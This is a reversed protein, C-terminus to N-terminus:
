QFQQQCSWGGIRTYAFGRYAKFGFRESATLICGNGGNIALFPPHDKVEILLLDGALTMNPECRPLITDLYRVVMAKAEVPSSKFFEPYEEITMGEFSDPAEVGITKLYDWISRFCDVKGLEYPRNVLQSVSRCFGRAMM